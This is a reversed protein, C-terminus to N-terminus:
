LYRAIGGFLLYAIMVGDVTSNNGKWLFSVLKPIPSGTPAGEGSWGSMVPQLNDPSGVYCISGM